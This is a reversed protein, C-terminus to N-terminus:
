PRRDLAALEEVVERSGQLAVRQMYLRVGVLGGLEAGGGARGPGGHLAAPFALGSGPAENASGQSGVYLRGCDAGGHALFQGLWDRDDSYVSTVLMGGGLGVVRAAEAASADYPLLTAVPAFVEHEHVVTASDADNARLLTPALFYGRGPPSGAGDARKGDGAVLRASSELRRVGALADELQQATALPGMTVGEQAPNGTVVRAMRAVLAEQVRELAAAPAFIRRVATCKQGAKHTVERVVDRVFLDFTPGERVDPGLVAANLSDAEVNVRTNAASLNERARLGRATSASGTFAFVDQPGLRDLLDGLGGCVLQLAGPPLVGAEVVIEVCRETLMSTATAPKTIVPMGGLLACAAKEAFGWAPFNFANVHVAAGQRPLLVHQVWFAESRSLQVGEGEALLPASGLSRALSGYYYLAGTAGDIDFAGDAATTGANLRSIEMLEDRKGRLAKSMKGLLEGREPLTLARLAPGGVERAHKLVAAFDVGASSARAVPEETSPDVLTVFGTGAEHWKGAVWSRLTKM